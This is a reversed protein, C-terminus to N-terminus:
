FFRDVYLTAFVCYELEFTLIVLTLHNKNLWFIFLYIFGNFVVFCGVKQEQSNPAILGRKELSKLRDKPLTCCGKTCFLIDSNLAM